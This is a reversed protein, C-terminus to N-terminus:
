FLSWDAEVRMVVEVVFDATRGDPITAVVEVSLEGDGELARKLLASAEDLNQGEVRTGVAIAASADMVEITELAAGSGRSVSGLLAGTEADNPPVNVATITAVASRVTVDEINDRQDWADGAVERLSVAESASVSGSGQIRFTERIEFDTSGGCGVLTALGLAGLLARFLGNTM